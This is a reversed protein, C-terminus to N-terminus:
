KHIMELFFFVYALLLWNRAPKSMSIQDADSPQSGELTANRHSFYFLFLVVWM